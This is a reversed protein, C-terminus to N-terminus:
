MRCCVYCLYQVFHTIFLIRVVAAQISGVYVTTSMLLSCSALSRYKRQDHNENQLLYLLEIDKGIDYQCEYVDDKRLLTGFAIRAEKTVKSYEPNRLYVYNYCYFFRQRSIIIIIIADVM